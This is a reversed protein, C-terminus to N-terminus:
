EIDYQYTGTASPAGLLVGGDGLSIGGPLNGAVIRIGYPARGGSAVYQPRAPISVTGTSSVVSGYTNGVVGPVINTARLSLPAPTQAWAAVELCLLFYLFLPM